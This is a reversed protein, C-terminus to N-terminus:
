SWIPPMGNLSPMNLDDCMTFAPISGNSRPSIVSGDFIGCRSVGAIVPLALSPPLLSFSAALPKCLADEAVAVEARDVNLAAPVVTLCVAAAQLTRRCCAAKPIGPYTAQRSKQPRGGTWENSSRLEVM